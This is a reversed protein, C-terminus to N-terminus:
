AVFKQDQGFKEVIADEEAKGGIWLYVPIAMAAAVIGLSLTSVNWGQADPPLCAWLPGVACAAANAMTNLSYAQALMTEAEEAPPASAETEPINTAIAEVAYAVEASCAIIPLSATFGITVLLFALLVKKGTDNSNVARLAVLCPASLCFGAVAVRKPGYRDCIWGVLPDLFGSVYLTTMM